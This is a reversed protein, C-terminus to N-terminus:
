MPAFVRICGCGGDASSEPVFVQHNKPNVTISHARDKTPIKQIITHTKADIVAVVPGPDKNGAAASYYQGLVDDAATEDTGGAGPIYIVKGTKVNFVAQQATMGDKATGFNCGLMLEAGKGIANGHPKCNDLPLIAVRKGTKPDVKLMGGKEKQHNMEPVDTWFMGDAPSYVTQELGDTAEPVPVRATIKRDKASILILTPPDDDPLAVAVIGDRADYALEDGGGDKAGSPISTIRKGAVLDVVIVGERGSGLWAEKGHDATVVGSGRVGSIVKLLKDKDADFVLLANNGPNSTDKPDRAAFSTLVYRQTGPDVWSIDFGALPVDLKVPIQTIEKLEGAQVACCIAMGGFVAGLVGKMHLSM